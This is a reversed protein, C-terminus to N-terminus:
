ARFQRMRAVLDQYRAIRTDYYTRLSPDPEFCEGIEVFVECAQEATHYLDTGLGALMAAGALGAETMRLRRVPLGYIDAKIQLWADSRAGGGSARLETLEIGAERLGKLPGCFYYSTSELIARLIDGRTTELRLGSIVGTANTLFDPPGTTTFYPLVLLHGPEAPIEAMLKGYVDPHNAIDAAFTDRFWRVLVGGQNYLFSVYRDPLVHHEVNLGVPLMAEPGPIHDYVPTICEYTGLGVVAQGPAIAGAGLANLCQDHGGVVVKVGKPLGLADAHEDRVIGAVSGAPLIRPLKEPPIDALALLQPSWDEAHIDFLLTRNAASHSVFPECGLLTGVLGDFLVFTATAEFLDPQHRRIWDLKPLSYGVMLPNPNIRYLSAVEMQERLQQVMEEGRPDCSLISLDMIEGDGSLNVVAEGLSSVCMATIPDSGASAAVEAIVERTKQWVERADLCVWGPQPARMAYERYATALCQADVTFTGAKVGGTGIDIGLLSM